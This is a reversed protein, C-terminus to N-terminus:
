SSSRTVRVWWDGGCVVAAILECAVCAGAIGGLASLHTGLGDPDLGYTTLFGSGTFKVGDGYGEPNFHLFPLGRFESVMMGAWAHYIFSAHQFEVIDATASNPSEGRTLLGGFTISVALIMVTALNAQGADQTVHWATRGMSASIVAVVSLCYWTTFVPGGGGLLNCLILLIPTFIAAPTM